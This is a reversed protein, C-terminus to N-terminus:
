FLLEAIWGRDLHRELQAAPHNASRGLEIAEQSFHPLLDQMLQFRIMPGAANAMGAM